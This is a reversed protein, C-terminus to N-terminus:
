VVVGVPIYATFYVLLFFLFPDMLYQFILIFSVLYLYRTTYRHYKPAQPIIEPLRSFHSVDAVALADVNRYLIAEL